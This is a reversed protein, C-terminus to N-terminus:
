RCASIIFISTLPDPPRECMEDCLTYLAASLRVPSIWSLAPSDGGGGPSVQVRGAPAECQAGACLLKREHRPVDCALGRGIWEARCGDKFIESGPQLRRQSSDIEYEADSCRPASARAPIDALFSSCGHSPVKRGDAPFVPPQVSSIELIGSRVGTFASM